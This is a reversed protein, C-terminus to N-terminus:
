LRHWESWSVLLHYVVQTALSITMWLLSISTNPTQLKLQLNYRQLYLKHNSFPLIQWNLNSSDSISKGPSYCTPAGGGWFFCLMILFGFSIPTIMVTTLLYRVMVTLKCNLMQHRFFLLSRCFPHWGWWLKESLTMKEEEILTAVWM